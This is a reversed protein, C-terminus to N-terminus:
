WGINTLFINNNTLKNSLGFQQNIQEIPQISSQINVWSNMGADKAKFLVFCIYVPLLLFNINSNLKIGYKTNLSAIYNTTFTIVNESWAQAVTKYVTVFYKLYLTLRLKHHYKQWDHLETFMIKM